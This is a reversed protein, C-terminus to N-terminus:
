SHLELDIFMGELLPIMQNTNQYTSQIAVIHENRPVQNALSSSLAMVFTSLTILGLEFLLYKM